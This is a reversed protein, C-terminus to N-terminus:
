KKVQYYSNIIFAKFISAPDDEIESCPQVRVFDVAKALGHEVIKFTQLFQNVTDEFVFNFVDLRIKGLAIVMFVAILINFKFGIRKPYEYKSFKFEVEAFQENM